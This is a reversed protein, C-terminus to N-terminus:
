VLFVCTRVMNDLVYWMANDLTNDAAVIQIGFLGTDKYSTNFAGYGHVFGEESLERALKSSANKGAAGQRCWSGLITKMLM